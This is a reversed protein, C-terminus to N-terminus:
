EFQLTVVELIQLICQPLEPLSCKAVLLLQQDSESILQGGSFPLRYDLVGESRLYVSLQVLYLYLAIKLLESLLHLSDALLPYAGKSWSITLGHHLCLLLLLLWPPEQIWILHASGRILSISTSLIEANASQM